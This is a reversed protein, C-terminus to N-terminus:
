FRREYELVILDGQMLDLFEQEKERRHEWSYYREKFEERFDRWGLVEGL